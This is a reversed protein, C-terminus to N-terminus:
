DDKPDAVAELAATDLTPRARRTLVTALWLVIGLALLGGAITYQEAGRGSSVPLVLWTCTVVGIVPLVRGARFHQRDIRDRRLVLVAVNVVAFVTLLLLSTTGGLVAVIPSGPTLTVYAILALALLTTFAIATWPTRRGPLVKSLFGPLV